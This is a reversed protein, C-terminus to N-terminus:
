FSIDVIQIISGYTCKKQKKKKKRQNWLIFTIDKLIQNCICCQTQNVDDLMAKFNEFNPTKIDM